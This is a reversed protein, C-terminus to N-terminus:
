KRVGVSKLIVGALGAALVLLVPSLDTFVALAFVALFIM